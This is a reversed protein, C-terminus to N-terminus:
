NRRTLYYINVVIILGNLVYVSTANLLVGYIVFLISGIINVIRIKRNEKMMFSILIIITAVIGIIEINNM